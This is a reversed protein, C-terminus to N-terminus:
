RPPLRKARAKPAIAGASGGSGRSLIPLLRDSTIPKLLFDKAGVATVQSRMAEKAQDAVAIVTIPKHAARQHIRRIMEVCDLDTVGVDVIVVDPREAGIALLADICSDYTAVHVGAVREELERRIARAARADGDVVVVSTPSTTEPGAIRFTTRVLRQVADAPPPRRLFAAAGRARFARDVDPVPSTSLVAIATTATDPDRSLRTVLELADVGALRQDLFILGPRFAAVLRGAMFADAATEITLTDDVARAAEAVQDRVAPDADVILIRGAPADEDALFPIGRARCFRDLDQRQIRRHGGATKFAPIKGEKIWRIVTMPTVRCIRAADHTSFIEKGRGITM